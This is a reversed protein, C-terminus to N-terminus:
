LKLIGKGAGVEMIIDACLRLCNESAVNQFIGVVWDVFKM